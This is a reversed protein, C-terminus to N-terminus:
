DRKAESYTGPSKFREGIAVYHKLLNPFLKDVVPGMFSQMEGVSKEILRSNKWVANFEEKVTADLAAREADTKTSAKKFMALETQCALIKAESQVLCTLMRRQQERLLAVEQRLEEIQAQANEM